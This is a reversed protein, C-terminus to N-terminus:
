KGQPRASRVTDADNYDAWTDNNSWHGVGGNDLSNRIVPKPSLILKYKKTSAAVGAYLWDRQNNTLLPNGTEVPRMTTMTPIVQSLVFVGTNGCEFSFYLPDVDDSGVTPPRAINYANASTGINEKVTTWEEESLNLTAVRANIDAVDDFVDNLFADHDDLVAGYGVTHQLRTKYVLNGTSGRQGRKHAYHSDVSLATANDTRMSIEQYNEDGINIVVLPNEAMIQQAPTLGSKQCSLFVIIVDGDDPFTKCSGRETGDQTTLTYDYVTAPSLGTIELSVVGDQIAAVSTGSVAEGSNLSWAVAGETDPRVALRLRDSGPIGNWFM